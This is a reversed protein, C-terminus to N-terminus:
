AKSDKRCCHIPGRFFSDQHSLVTALEDHNSRRLKRREGMVVTMVVTLVVVMMMATAKKVDKKLRRTAMAVIREMMENGFVCQTERSWRARRWRGIKEQAM